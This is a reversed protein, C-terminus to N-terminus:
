RRRTWPNCPSCFRPQVLEGPPTEPAMIMADCYPAGCNVKEMPRPEERRPVPAQLGLTMQSM